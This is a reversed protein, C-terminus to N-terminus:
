KGGLLKKIEGELQEFRVPKALVADAKIWVREEATAAAFEMGAESAVGTVMIVPLDKWSKKIFYCLEFGSDDEEMMLDVVVLDPREQALSERAAKASDCERVTFGKAELQLKQQLRFDFDDDILLITAKNKEDMGAM